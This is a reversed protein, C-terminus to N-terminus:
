HIELKCHEFFMVVSLLLSKLLFRATLYRFFLSFQGFYFYASYAYCAM